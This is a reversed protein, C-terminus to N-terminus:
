AGCQLLLECSAAVEGTMNVCKTGPNNRVSFSEAKEYFICNPYTLYTVCLMDGSQAIARGACKQFWGLDINQTILNGM